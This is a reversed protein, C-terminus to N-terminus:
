TSWTLTFALKQEDTVWDEFEVWFKTIRRARFNFDNAIVWGHGAIKSRASGIHEDLWAILEDINDRRHYIRETM